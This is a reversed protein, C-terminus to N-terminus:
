FNTNENGRFNLRFIQTMQKKLHFKKVGIKIVTQFKHKRQRTLVHFYHIKLLIAKRGAM